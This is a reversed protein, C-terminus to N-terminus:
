QFEGTVMMEWDEKGRDGVETFWKSNRMEWAAQTWKEDNVAAIMNHFCSLKEKGLNFAMDILVAQRAECIGDMKPFLSLADAAACKLDSLLLSDAEEQTITGFEEDQHVLHGVGITNYGMTDAYPTLCCGEHKKVLAITKDTIM